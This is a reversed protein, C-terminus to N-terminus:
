LKINQDYKTLKHVQEIFITDTIERLRNYENYKKNFTKWHMSKKKQWVDGNEYHEFIEEGLKDKKSYFRDRSTELTSRYPLRYCKRCYFYKGLDTLIAVRKRCNPCLFWKRTGGYNCRTEDFYITQEVEEWEQNQQNLHKYILTMRDDTIKYGIGGVPNGNRTWKLSGQNQHKLLGKRNLWRVDLTNTSEITSQRSHRGSGIGGM